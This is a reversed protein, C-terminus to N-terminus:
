SLSSISNYKEHSYVKDIYMAINKLQSGTQYFTYIRRAHTSHYLSFM